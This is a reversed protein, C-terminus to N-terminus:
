KKVKWQIRPDCISYTLDAMLNTLLYICSFILVCGQVVPYDRNNISRLLLEGLGPWDFITETIIAGTMLAGLQLSILTIIPLLANRAGHVLLVSLNNVGKSRATRIYDEGLVEIMSSRMTRSLIAALSTGMTLSPLIFSSLGAKESVPLLDLSVSFILILIPALWFNPIAVGSVSFTMLIRDLKTNKYVASLIGIPLSVLLAVLLSAVALEATNLLREGILKSVATNEVISAGLDFHFVSTIYNFIQQSIPINLGLKTLLIQKEHATAYEGLMLDAPNGPTLHIMLSVLIIVGLATPLLLFLRHLFWM